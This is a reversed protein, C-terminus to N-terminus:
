RGLRAFIGAHDSFKGELVTVYRLKWTGEGAPILIHDISARLPKPFKAPWTGKDKLRLGSLVDAHNRIGALAGHRMNANFDGAFIADPLQSAAAAVTKLDEQWQGMLSPLPPMTHLAYVPPLNTGKPPELLLGGLAPAAFDRLKYAGLDKKIVVTLASTMNGRSVTGFVQYAAPDLGAARFTEALRPSMQGDPGTGQLEPFVAIDTKYKGFIEAATEAPLTGAANWSVLRLEAKAEAAFPVKPLGASGGALVILLSALVGSFLAINLPMKQRFSKASVKVFSLLLLCVLGLGLGSLFPFATLQCLVPLSSLWQQPDSAPLVLHLLALILVLFGPVVVWDTKIFRM